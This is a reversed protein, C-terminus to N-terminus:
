HESTCQQNRWSGKETWGDDGFLVLECLRKVALQDYIADPHLPRVGSDVVSQRRDLTGFDYVVAAAKLSRNSPNRM